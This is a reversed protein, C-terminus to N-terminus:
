VLSLSRLRLTFFFHEGPVGEGAWGQKWASLKSALVREGKDCLEELFGEWGAYRALGKLDDVSWVDRGQLTQLWRLAAAEALTWSRLLELLPDAGVPQSVADGDKAAKESPQLSGDLEGSASRKM